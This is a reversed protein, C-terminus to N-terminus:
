GAMEVDKAKEDSPLGLFKRKATELVAEVLISRTAVAAEVAKDVLDESSVGADGKLWLETIEDRESLYGVVCAAVIQAHEAPCPDLVASSDGDESKFDSPNRIIAAVGGSILDVCDIGADVLAASSVTICGALVNMMGWGGVGGVGTTGGTM